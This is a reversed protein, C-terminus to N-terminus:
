IWLEEWAFRDLSRRDRIEFTHAAFGFERVERVIDAKDDIHIVEELPEPRSRNYLNAIDRLKAAKGQPGVKKATFIVPFNDARDLSVAAAIREICRTAKQKTAEIVAYSLFIIGIDSRSDLAHQM